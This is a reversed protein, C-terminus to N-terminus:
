GLRETLQQILWANRRDDNETNVGQVPGLPDPLYKDLCLRPHPNSVLM